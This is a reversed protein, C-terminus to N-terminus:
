RGEAPTVPRVRLTGEGAVAVAYVAGDECTAFYTPLGNSTAVVESGEVQQCPHRADRIARFLVGNRQGEPLAQVQQQTQDLQVPAVAV